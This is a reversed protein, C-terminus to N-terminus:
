KLRNRQAAEFQMQEYCADVWGRQWAAYRLRGLEHSCEWKYPNHSRVTGAAHAARGLAYTERYTTSKDSLDTM